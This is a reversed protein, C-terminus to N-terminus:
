AKDNEGLSKLIKVAAGISIDYASKGSLEQRMSYSRDILILLKVSEDSSGGFSMISNFKNTKIVPKAFAAVLLLVILFRLIFILYKKFEMLRHNKAYARKILFLSSFFAKKQKKFFLYHIILPVIVLPLFFLFSSNIFYM